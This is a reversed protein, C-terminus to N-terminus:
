QLMTVGLQMIYQKYCTTLRVTTGKCLFKPDCRNQIPKIYITHPRQVISDLTVDELDVQIYFVHIEVSNINLERGCLLTPQASLNIAKYVFCM